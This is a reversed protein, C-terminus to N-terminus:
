WSLFIVWPFCWVWARSQGARLSLIVEADEHQTFAEEGPQALNDAATCAADQQARALVASPAPWSRTRRCRGTPTCTM